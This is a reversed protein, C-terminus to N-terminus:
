AFQVAGAFRQPPEVGGQLLADLLLRQLAVADPAAALVGEEDGGEVSGVQADARRM